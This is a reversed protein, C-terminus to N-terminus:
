SNSALKTSGLAIAVGFIVLLVAAIILFRRTRKEGYRSHLHALLPGIILSGIVIKIATFTATNPSPANSTSSNTPQASLLMLWFGFGLILLGIAIIVARILFIIRPNPSFSTTKDTDTM